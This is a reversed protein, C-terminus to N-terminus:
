IMTDILAEEAYDSMAYVADIIDKAINVVYDIISYAYEKDLEINHHYTDIGTSTIPDFFYIALGIYTNVFLDELYEEDSSDLQDYELYVCPYMVNESRGSKKFNCWTYGSHSSLGLKSLEGITYGCVDKYFNMVENVYTKDVYTKKM